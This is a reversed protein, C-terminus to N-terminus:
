KLRKKCYEDFYATMPEKMVDRYLGMRFHFRGPYPYSYKESYATIGKYDIIKKKNMWARLFGYKARTFKIHFVFDIWKGRMEKDTKFLDMRDEKTQLTIRFTGDQYRLAIIPNDVTANNNEDKQKWQSFILRTPVIQFKKPLFVSFSYSYAEGEKAWLRKEERIEDRETNRHKGKLDEFKDKSRVTIKLAKKGKRVINSQIKVAYPESRKRDWIDSLKKGEFGDYIDEM